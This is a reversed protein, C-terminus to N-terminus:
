KIIIKNMNRIKIPNNYVIYVLELKDLYKQIDFIVLEPEIDLNPINSCSVNHFNVGNFGKRELYNLFSDRGLGKVFFKKLLKKHDPNKKNLFLIKSVQSPNLSETIDSKSLSLRYERYGGHYELGDEKIKKNWYSDKKAFYTDEKKPNIELESPKFGRHVHYFYPM